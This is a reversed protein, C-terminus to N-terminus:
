SNDSINNSGNSKFLVMMRSTRNISILGKMLNSFKKRYDSFLHIHFYLQFLSSM